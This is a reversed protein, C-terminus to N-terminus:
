LDLSLESASKLVGQRRKGGLHIIDEGKILPPHLTFILFYLSTKVYLSRNGFICITNQLVLFM